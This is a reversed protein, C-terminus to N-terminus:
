SYDQDPNAITVLLASTQPSELGIMENYVSHHELLTTKIGLGKFPKKADLQSRFCLPQGQDNCVIIHINDTVCISVLYHDPAISQLILQKIQYGSEQLEKISIKM